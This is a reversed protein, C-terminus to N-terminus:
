RLTLSLERRVYADTSGEFAVRLEWDRDATRKVTAGAGSGLIRPTRARLTYSRGGRGELVLRLVQGEARARLIRLGASRAGPESAEARAYVDTGEDYAFVIQARASVGPLSV